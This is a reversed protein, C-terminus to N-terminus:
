MLIIQSQQEFVSTLSRINSAIKEIKAIKRTKLCEKNIYTPPHTSPYNESLEM